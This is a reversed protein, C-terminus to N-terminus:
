PAPTLEIEVLEGSRGDLWAVDRGDTVAWRRSSRHYRATRVNGQLYLASEAVAQQSSLESFDNTESPPARNAFLALTAAAFGLSLLEIKCRKM